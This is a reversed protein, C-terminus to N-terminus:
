YIGATNGNYTQDGSFVGSNQYQSWKSAVSSAGGVLSSFAELNGAYQDQEAQAKFGAAANKYNWAERAANDRITLTDLEGLKATDTQIRLPSGSDVEVNGAAATARERGILEATARQKAQAQQEGKQIALQANMGAITQNNKAVQAQYSSQQEASYISAGTGVAAAVLGAIAISTGGNKTSVHIGSNATVTLQYQHPPAEGCNKDWFSHRMM